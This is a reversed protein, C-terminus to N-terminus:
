WWGHGELLIGWPLGVSHRWMRLQSCYVQDLSWLTFAIGVTAIGCFVMARMTNLDEASKHETDSQRVKAPASNARVTSPNLLSEMRYINTFVILITLLTHAVQHFTPDKLFHYYLSGGVSVFVTSLLILKKTTERKNFAFTAYFNTSALYIMSLEDLLQTWDSTRTLWSGTM